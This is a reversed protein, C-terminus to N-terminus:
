GIRKVNFIAQVFGDVALRESPDLRNAFALDMAQYLSQDKAKSAKILVWQVFRLLSRHSMTQSIQGDRNAARIMNALQVSHALFNDDNQAPIRRKLLAVEEEEAMPEVRKMIFRDLFAENQAKTGIYRGTPDPSGNTNDTVVVAFGPAAEVLEGSEPVLVRGRELIENLASLTQPRFYSIENILLVAPLRMAMLIPGDMTVMTGQVVTKSAILEPVDRDEDGTLSIVPVRLRAFFQEVLSTKGAAAEGYLYLQDAIMGLQRLMWWSAVDEFVEKRFVYEHDITPVMEHQYDPPNGALRAGDKLYPADFVEKAEYLHSFSSKLQYTM